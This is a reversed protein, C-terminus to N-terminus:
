PDDHDGTHTTALDAREALLVDVEHGARQGDLPRVGLGLGPDLLLRCLRALLATHSDVRLCDLEKEFVTFLPTLLTYKKADREPGVQEDEGGGRRM